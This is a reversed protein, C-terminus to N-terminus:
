RVTQILFKIHSATIRLMAFNSSLFPLTKFFVKLFIYNFLRTIEFFSFWSLLVFKFIWVDGLCVCRYMLLFFGFDDDWWFWFVLWTLLLLGVNRNIFLKVKFIKSSITYHWFKFGGTIRRWLYRGKVTVHSSYGIFRICSSVVSAM